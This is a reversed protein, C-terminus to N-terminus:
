QEDAERLPMGAQRRLHDELDTMEFGAGTMATVFVSLATLDVSEVDGHQFTPLADLNFEPNLEFLRPVAQRNLVDQIAGLWAGLAVGFVDTKSDALAFSGAKEHGLLVFDALASMAIRQDYRQIIASTDFLRRSNVSMLELKFRENGNEDYELPMIVGAQENQRVQTVLRKFAALVAKDESSADSRLLYAPIKAVPLGVLDRELGIGEFNEVRTKFYWPRYATRLISCGEPNNKHGKPRFLLLKESPIFVRKWTPPSQQWVGLLDAANEDMEWQWITTQGRIPLRHWGIRGDDYRSPVKTKMGARRKYVTEHLSFGYTLMSLVEVILEDWTHSMDYQCTRLFEAAQLDAPDQSAEKVTWDVQRILMQIAFLVTGVMPDNSSMERYIKLAKGGSLEPLFEESIQGGYIELGASGIEALRSANEPM